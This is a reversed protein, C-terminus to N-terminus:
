RPPPLVPQIWAAEKDGARLSNFQDKSSTVRARVYLEDGRFTYEARTGAVEGFVEGIRESYRRTVPLVEGNAGLVPQSATDVGRRTGIFTTRYSVGPEGEVEVILERSTAKVEKLRVGSSAYFDGRELAHILSEATLQASRVWVWGRGANSRASGFTHYHHADDVAIGYLIEPHPSTLRLTLIIDWMRETSAHIADGENHVSPHGNYVEFFKEGRVGALDEATVAWGFNPHNLHPLIARGTEQRQRLVADVMRQMVDRVSTGGPPAIPKLLNSANLHVPRKEFEDSIEESSILLFRGPQEFLVRYEALPSLRVELKGGSTRTRVRRAGFRERYKELARLRVTNTGIALWKEGEQLVNHDSIALFHYGRQQYWDTIMEPFDDGDSWFSHTHLNGKWWPPSSNNEGPQGHASTPAAMLLALLGPLILALPLPKMM